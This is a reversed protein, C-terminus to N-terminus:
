LDIVDQTYKFQGKLTTFHKSRITISYTPVSSSCHEHTHENSERAEALCESVTSDDMLVHQM